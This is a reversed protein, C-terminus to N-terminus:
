LANLRGIIVNLLKRFATRNSENEEYKGNMFKKLVAALAKNKMSNYKRGNDADTKSQM